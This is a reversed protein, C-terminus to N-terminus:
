SLLLSSMLDGANSKSSESENVACAEQNPLSEDAEDAEACAEDHDASCYAFACCTNWPRLASM